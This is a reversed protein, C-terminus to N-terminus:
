MYHSERTMRKTCDDTVTVDAVDTNQFNTQRCTCCSLIISAGVCVVLSACNCSLTQPGRTYLPTTTMYDDM